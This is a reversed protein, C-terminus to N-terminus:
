NRKTSTEIQISIVFWHPEIPWFIPHMTFFFKFVYARLYFGDFDNFKLQNTRAHTHAHPHSQKNITMIPM